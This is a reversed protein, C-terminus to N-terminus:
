CSVHRVHTIMSYELLIYDSQHIFLLVQSPSLTFVVIFSTLTCALETDLGLPSSRDATVDATRMMDSDTVPLPMVYQQQSLHCAPFPSFDRTTLPEQDSAYIYLICRGQFVCDTKFLSSTFGPWLDPLKRTRSRTGGSTWRLIAWELMGGQLWDTGLTSLAWFRPQVSCHSILYFPQIKHNRPIWLKMDCNRSIYSPVNWVQTAVITTPDLLTYCTITEIEKRLPTPPVALRARVTIIQLM